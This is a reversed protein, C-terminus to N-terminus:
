NKDMIDKLQCWEIFRKISMGQIKEQRLLLPRELQKVKEAERLGYNLGLPYHSSNKDTPAIGNKRRGYCYACYYQGEWETFPGSKCGCGGCSDAEMPLDVLEVKGTFHGVKNRIPRTQIM